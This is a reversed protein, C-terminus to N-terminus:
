ESQLAQASLPSRHLAFSIKLLMRYTRYTCKVFAFCICLLCVWRRTLSSTVYSSHSWPNLQWFFRRDHDPVQYWASSIPPLSGTTFYGQSQSEASLKLQSFHSTQLQPPSSNPFGSSSFREDNFVTVLCRSPFFSFIKRTSYNTIKPTHLEALSDYNNTTVLQKLILFIRNGIWVRDITV